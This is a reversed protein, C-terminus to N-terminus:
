DLDIMLTDTPISDTKLKLKEIAIGTLSVSPIFNNKEEETIIERRQLHNAIHKFYSENYKKLVRNDDFNWYFFKPRPVILALFISENLNLDIPKKNFYYRSAETIGFVNPGWEIINLYVEYMREKTVIRKNEILWVILAEEIKRAVTKKRTLFVNKVLQMSITSGGRKFKKEKFNTAISKRFANENFGKHWFFDGDESVLVANRLLPSINNIETFDPNSPGVPFTAVPVNKEYATYLFESNLKALNTQGYDTISFKDALLTSSFQVSDPMSADLNFHLNYALNGSTKIGDFCTFLGSPFSSFFTDANTNPIKLDLAYCKNPKITYKIFPHLLLGNLNCTTASDVGLSFENFFLTYNVNLKNVVVDTPSIRWHNLKAKYLSATGKVTFTEDDFGSETISLQLTDFSCTAKFKSEFFPLTAMSNKDHYMKFMLNRDSKKIHSTIYWVFTKSGETIIAKTNFIGNHLNIQPLEWHTASSDSKTALIAKNITVSNPINDFIKDLLHDATSALNISSKQTNTKSKKNLLFAYNNGNQTGVINLAANNVVVEDVRIHGLLLPLVRISIKLDNVKLLTDLNQPTVSLNSASITSLGEFNLQAYKIHLKYQKYYAEVKKNAVFHLLTNRFAFFGVVMLVLAVGFVTFLKKYNINKFYRSFNVM